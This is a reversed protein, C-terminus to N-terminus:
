PNEKIVVVVVVVVVVVFVSASEMEVGTLQREKRNFLAGSPKV